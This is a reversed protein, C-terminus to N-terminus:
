WWSCGFAEVACEEAEKLEQQEEHKRVWERREDIIESEANIVETIAPDISLIMKRANGLLKSVHIDLTSGDDMIHQNPPNRFARCNRYFVVPEATTLPRAFALILRVCEAHRGVIAAYVAKAVATNCDAAYRPGWARLAEHASRQAASCQPSLTPPRRSEPQRCQPPPMKHLVYRLLDDRGSECAAVVVDSNHGCIGLQVNYLHAVEGCLATNCGSSVAVMAPVIRGVLRVVDAPLADFTTTSM